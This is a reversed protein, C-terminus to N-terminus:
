RSTCDGHARACRACGCDRARLWARLWARQERRQRGDQPLVAVALAALLRGVQEDTEAVSAYYARRATM